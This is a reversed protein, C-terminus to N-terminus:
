VGSTRLPELEQIPGAPDVSTPSYNLHRILGHTTISSFGTALQEAPMLFASLGSYGLAVLLSVDPCLCILWNKGRM